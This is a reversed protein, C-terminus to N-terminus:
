GGFSDTPPVTEDDNLLDAGLFAKEEVAMHETLQEVLQLVARAAVEVDAAASADILTKQLAAHEVIHESLMREARAKGWPDITPLIRRLAAEEHTNHARLQELLRGMCVHLENRADAGSQWREAASAAERLTESLGRHERVLDARIESLKM